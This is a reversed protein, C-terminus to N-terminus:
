LDRPALFEELYGDEPRIGDLAGSFRLVALGCTPFGRAVAALATAQGDRSLAMALDEMMPNHGVVLVSGANSVERIIELYGGADSSYLGDLYRVDAAKLHRAAAEWTERARRAGSCLVLDPVYGALLMSAAITESDAKGSPELARDYDRTGPDAWRAKAHRLLLLRNM